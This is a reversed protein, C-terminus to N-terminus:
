LQFIGEDPSMKPILVDLLRIIKATERVVTPNDSLNEFAKVSEVLKTIEAGANEILKTSTEIIEIADDMSNICVNNRDAFVEDLIQTATPNSAFSRLDEKLAEAQTRTQKVIDGPGADQVSPKYNNLVAARYKQTLSGIGSRSSVKTRILPKSRFSYPSPRVGSYIGQSSVLPVLLLLLITSMTIRLSEFQIQNLFCVAEYKYPPDPLLRSTVILKVFSPSISVTVSNGYSVAM